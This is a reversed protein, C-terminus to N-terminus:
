LGRSGRAAKRAERAAAREDADIAPALRGSAYRDALYLCIAASEAMRVEGDAIAPVKGMPSAALFEAPKEEASRIDIFEREYPVATEELMWAVRSSRTKPCWYFKM